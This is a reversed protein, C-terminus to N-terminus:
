YSSFTFFGPQSPHLPFLSQNIHPAYAIILGSSSPRAIQGSASGSIVHAPPSRTHRVKIKEHSQNGDCTERQRNEESCASSFPERTTAAVRSGKALTYVLAPREGGVGNYLM